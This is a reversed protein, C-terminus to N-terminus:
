IGIVEGIDPNYNDWIKLKGEQYKFYYIQNARKHYPFIGKPTKFNINWFEETELVINDEEISIIKYNFVEYNSLDELFLAGMKNLNERYVRAREIYSTNKLLVKDFEVLEKDRLDRLATFEIRCLEEVIKKLQIMLESNDAKKTAKQNDNKKTESIFNNLDMYGLFLCLKDLTKHFRLDTYASPKVQKNYLRKLTISSVSNGLTFFAHTNQEIKDSLVDNIIQSLIEYHNNKWESIKGLISNKVKEHSNIATLLDEIVEDM